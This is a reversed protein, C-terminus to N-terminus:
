SEKQEAELMEVIRGSLERIVAAANESTESDINDLEGTEAAIQMLISIAEIQRAKELIKTENKM